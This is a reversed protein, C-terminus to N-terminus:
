KVERWRRQKNLFILRQSPNQLVQHQTEVALLLCEIFDSMHLSNDGWM